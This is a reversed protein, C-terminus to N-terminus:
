QDVEQGADDRDAEFRRDERDIGAERAMGPTKRKPEV